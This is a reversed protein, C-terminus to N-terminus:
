APYDALIRRILAKLRKVDRRLREACTQTHRGNGCPCFQQALERRKLRPNALKAELAKAAVHRRAVPRGKPHEGAALFAREAVEPSESRALADRGAELVQRALDPGPAVAYTLLTRLRRVAEEIRSVAEPTIPGEALRAAAYQRIRRIPELLVSEGPNLADNPRPARTRLPKAM